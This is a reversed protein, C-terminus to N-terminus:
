RCRVPLAVVRVQGIKGHQLVDRWDCLRRRLRARRCIAVNLSMTVWLLCKATTTGAIYNHKKKGHSDVPCEQKIELGTPEYQLTSFVILQLSSCFVVRFLYRRRVRSSSRPSTSWRNTTHVGGAIPTIKKLSRSRWGSDHTHAREAM